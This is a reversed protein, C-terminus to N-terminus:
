WRCSAPMFVVRMNLDRLMSVCACIEVCVDQAIEGCNKQFYPFRM